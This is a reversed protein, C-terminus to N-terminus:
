YDSSERGHWIRVIIIDDDRVLYCLWYGGQGFSIFLDRLRLDDIDDVSKGILRFVTTPSHPLREHQAQRLMLPKWVDVWKTLM